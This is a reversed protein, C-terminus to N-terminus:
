GLKRLQLAKKSTLGQAAAFRNARNASCGPM